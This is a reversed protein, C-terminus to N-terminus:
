RFARAEYGTRACEAGSGDRSRHAFIKRRAQAREYHSPPELIGTPGVVRGRRLVAFIKAPVAGGPHPEDVTRQEHRTAHAGLSGVTGKPATKEDSIRCPNTFASVADAM